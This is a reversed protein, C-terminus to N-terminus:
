VTGSFPVTKYDALVHKAARVGTTVATEMSPAGLWDGAFYYGNKGQQQRIAEVFEETAIPMTQPWYVLEVLETPEDPFLQQLQPQLTAFLKAKSWPHKEADARVVININMYGTLNAGYLTSLNIASIIQVDSHNPLYFIAGWSTTKEIVPVASAKIVATYYHTYECSIKLNPLINKYANSEVNQAFIVADAKSTDITTISRGLTITHGAAIISKALAAPLQQNGAPMFSSDTVDGYLKTLCIFPAMFAMKSQEVSPYCYGQLVVDTYTEYLGAHQPRNLLTRFYEAVTLRNFRNLDPEAVSRAQMIAGAGKVTLWTTDQKPFPITKDLYYQGSQDIQYYINKLPIPQLFQELQLEKLLRHYQKYWPYIIFGGVDVMTGAVPISLVRGGARQRQELITISFQKHKALEYAAALGALGAGVIVIHYPKM